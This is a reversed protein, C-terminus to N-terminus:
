SITVVAIDFIDPRGDIEAKVTAHHTVFPNPAAPATFLGTDSLTVGNAAGATISWKVKAGPLSVLKPTFQVTGGYQMTPNAPYITVQPARQEIGAQNSFQIGKSVLYSSASIGLLSLVTPPINSPFAPHPQSVIILFLSIAIVFTFILFQLRSMSADGNPESILKTLDISGDFIRWILALGVGGVVACVIWGAVLTLLEM